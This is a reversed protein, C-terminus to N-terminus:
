LSLGANRARRVVTPGSRSISTVGGAAMTKQSTQVYRSPDSRRSAERSPSWIASAWKGHGVHFAAAIM